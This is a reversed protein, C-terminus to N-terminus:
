ENVDQGFDILEQSSVEVEPIQFVFEPEKKIVEKKPQIVEPAASVSIQGQQDVVISLTLNLNITVEGDVTKTTFHQEKVVSTPKIVQPM